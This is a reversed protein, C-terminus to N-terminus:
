KSLFRSLPAPEAATKPAFQPVAVDYTAGGPAYDRPLYSRITRKEEEIRRLEARLREEGAL